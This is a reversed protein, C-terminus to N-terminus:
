GKQVLSLALRRALPLVVLVTPFAIAWSITWSSLWLTAMGDVLGVSRVISILSVVASMIGSLFFPVLVVMAKSPLKPLGLFKFYQQTSKTQSATSQTM